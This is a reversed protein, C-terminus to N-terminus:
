PEGGHQPHLLPYQAGGGGRGETLQPPLAGRFPLLFRYQPRLGELTPVPRFSQASISHSLAGFFQASDPFGPASQSFESAIPLEPSIAHILYIDLYSRKPAACSFGCISSSQLWTM